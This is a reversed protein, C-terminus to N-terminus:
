KNEKSEIEISDFVINVSLSKGAIENVCNDDCGELWIRITIKQASSTSLDFLSKIEGTQEDKGNFYNLSYVTVPQYADSNLTKNPYEEYINMGVSETSVGKLQYTGKSGDTPAVCFIYTRYNQVEISIRIAKTVDVESSDSGNYRIYSQDSLFIARQKNALGEDTEYQSKLWFETQIYKDTVNDDYVPVGGELVPNFDASVFTKGDASSVQKLAFDKFREFDNLNVKTYNGNEDPEGDEMTIVLAGTSAISINPHELSPTWSRAIWSYTVVSLLAITWVLSVIIFFKKRNKM